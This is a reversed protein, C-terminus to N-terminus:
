NSKAQLTGLGMIDEAKVRAVRDKQELPSLLDFSFVDNEKNEEDLFVEPVL